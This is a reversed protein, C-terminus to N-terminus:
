QCYAGFVVLPAEARTGERARMPPEITARRRQAVREISMVLKFLERVFSEYSKLRTVELHRVRRM